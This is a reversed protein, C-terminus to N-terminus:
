ECIHLKINNNFFEVMSPSRDGAVAETKRVVAQTVLRSFLCVCLKAVRHVSFKSCPLDVHLIYAPSRWAVSVLEYNTTPEM